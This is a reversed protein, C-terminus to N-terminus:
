EAPPPAVNDASSALKRLWLEVRFVGIIPLFTLLITTIMFAARKQEKPDFCVSCASADGAWLVLAALAVVVVVIWSRM